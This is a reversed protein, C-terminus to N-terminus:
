FDHVIRLRPADLADQDGHCVLKRLRRLSSQSPRFPKGSATSATKGRAEPCVQMTGRIRLQSSKTDSAIRPPRVLNPREITVTFFLRLAAIAASISWPSIQQRGMHPQFRRLDDTTATDPSRGLFATFNRVNRVYDDRNPESIRRATMDDTM